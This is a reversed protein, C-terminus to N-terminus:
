AISLSTKDSAFINFLNLGNKDTRKYAAIKESSAIHSLPTYGKKDDDLEWLQKHTLYLSNIDSAFRHLRNHMDYDLMFWEVSSQYNWSAFQGFECSMFTSKKSPTCMMHTIYARHSAFKLNYEGPMRSLLSQKPYVLESHNLSFVDHDCNIGSYLKKFRIDGVTSTNTVSELSDSSLASNIKLDFGLGGSKTTTVNKYGATDDAIMLVDPYSTKITKNLQKLFAVAEFCINGGHINPIWEGKKKHHDLFLMSSLDSVKLGDVHFERIFYCANSLLFSQIENKSINFRIRSSCSSSSEDSYRHEYLPEGDFMSLGHEGGAFSAPAWDLIVGVGCSHMTNIFHKFDDASGYRSTPSYMGCSAYGLSGEDPHESIPLLQVHTYGMRKAYSALIPAIERYSMFSGDPRRMFSGLHVEYINLPISSASSSLIAKRSSLWRSDTWDFSTESDCFVTATGPPCEMHRGYPDAKYLAKNNSIIKYKYLPQDRLTFYDISCEWVGKDTIRTMPHSESWSNFDGVLYVKDANPAWVRFMIKGSKKHTGFYDFANCCIGRHFLSADFGDTIKM